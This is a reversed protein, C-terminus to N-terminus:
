TKDAKEVVFHEFIQGSGGQGTGFLRIGHNLALSKVFKQKSVTQNKPHYNSTGVRNQLIKKSLILCEGKLRSNFSRL